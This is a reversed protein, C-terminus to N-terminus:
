IIPIGLEEIRYFDEGKRICRIPEETIDLITSGSSEPLVGKDIFIDVSNQSQLNSFEKLIQTPDNLPKEGSFNVSTTILPFGLKAVLDLIGPIQPIRIGIKNSGKLLVPNISSSASFIFTFKGPLLLRYFKFFIDPIYNVLGELMVLNPVIVSYPSSARKKIGDIKDIVAPSCFNGGIGYLTDTPYIVVGDNSLLSKMLDLTTLSFKDEYPITKM